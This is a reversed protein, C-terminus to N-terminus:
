FTAVTWWLFHAYSYHNPSTHCSHSSLTEQQLKRSSSMMGYACMIYWQGKTYPIWRNSVYRMKLCLNSLSISGHRITLPCINVICWFVIYKLQTINTLHLQLKIQLRHEFKRIRIWVVYLVTGNYRPWHEGFWEGFVGLLVWLLTLPHIKLIWDKIYIRNWHGCHYWRHRTINSQTIVAGSQIM